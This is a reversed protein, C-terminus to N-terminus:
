VGKESIWEDYMVSKVAKGVMPDFICTPRSHSSLPHPALHFRKKAAEFNDKTMFFVVLVGKYYDSYKLDFLFEQSASQVFHDYQNQLFWFAMKLTPFVVQKRSYSEGNKTVAPMM